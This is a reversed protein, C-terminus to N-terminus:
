KCFSRKLVQLSKILVDISETNSFSLVVDPDELIHINTNPIAEGIAHPKNLNRFALSCEREDRYGTIRTTGDGFEVVLIEKTNTKVKKIM